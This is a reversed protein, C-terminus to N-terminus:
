PTPKAVSRFTSASYSNFATDGFTTPLAKWTITTRRRQTLTFRTHPQLTPLGGGFHAYAFHIRNGDGVIREGVRHFSEEWWTMSYRNNTGFAFVFM